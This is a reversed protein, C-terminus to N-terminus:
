TFYFVCINNNVTTDFNLDPKYRSGRYIDAAHDVCSPWLRFSNMLLKLIETCLKVNSEDAYNRPEDQM